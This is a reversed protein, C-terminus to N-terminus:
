YIQVFGSDTLFGYIHGLYYVSGVFPPQVFDCGSNKMSLNLSIFVIIHLIGPFHALSILGTLLILGLDTSLLTHKRQLRDIIVDTFLSSM